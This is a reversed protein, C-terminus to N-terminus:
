TAPVDSVIQYGGGETTSLGERKRETSTRGDKTRYVLTVEVTNGHSSAHVDRVDVSEITRWFGLYRDRGMSQMAPALM